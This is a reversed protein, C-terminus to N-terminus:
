YSLSFLIKYMGTKDPIIRTPYVVLLTGNVVRNVRGKRLGTLDSEQSYHRDRMHIKRESIKHDFNLIL